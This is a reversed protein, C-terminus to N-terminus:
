GTEKSLLSLGYALSIICQILKNQKTNAYPYKTTQAQQIIDNALKLCYFLPKIAGQINERAKTTLQQKGHQM